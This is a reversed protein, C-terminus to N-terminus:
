VEMIEIARDRNIAMCVGRENRSSNTVLEYSNLKGLLFARKLKEIGRGLRCDTMIIIDCQKQTIAVLKEITKCNGDKYTSINLTHVAM